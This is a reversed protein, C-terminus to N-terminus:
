EWCEEGGSEERDGEIDRGGGERTSGVEGEKWRGGRVRSGGVEGRCRQECRRREWKGM